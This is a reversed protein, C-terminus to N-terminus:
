GGEMPTSLLVEDGARLPTDHPVMENNVAVVVPEGAPVPFLAVLDAVRGGPVAMPARDPANKPRFRRIDGHLTVFVEVTEM